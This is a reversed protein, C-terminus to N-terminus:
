FANMIRVIRDSSLGSGPSSRTALALPNEKITYVWSGNEGLIDANDDGSFVFTHLNGAIGCQYVRGPSSRGYSTIARPRPM